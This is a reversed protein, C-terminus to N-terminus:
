GIMVRKGHGNQAQQARYPQSKSPSGGSQSVVVGSSGQGQVRWPPSDSDDLEVGARGAVAGAKVVVVGAAVAGAGADVEVVAVLEPLAVVPRSM